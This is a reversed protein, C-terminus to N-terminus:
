LATFLTDRLVIEVASVAMLKPSRQFPFLSIRRKRHDDEGSNLSVSYARWEDRTQLRQLLWASAQRDGIGPFSVRALPGHAEKQYNTAYGDFTTREHVSGTSFCLRGGTARIQVAV